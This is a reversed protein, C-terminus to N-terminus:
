KQPPVASIATPLTFNSNAATSSNSGTSSSGGGGGGGCATLGFVLGLAFLTNLRKVNWNSKPM